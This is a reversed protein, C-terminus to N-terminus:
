TGGLTLRLRDTVADLLALEAAPGIVRLAVRALEVGPVPAAVAVELVGAAVQRFDEAAARLAHPGLTPPLKATLPTAAGLHLQLPMSRSWPLRRNDAPAWLAGQISFCLAWRRESKDPHPAADGWLM